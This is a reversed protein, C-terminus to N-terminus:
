EDDELLKRWGGGGSDGGDWGGGGGDWDGGDYSGSDCDHVM